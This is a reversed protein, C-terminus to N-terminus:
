RALSRRPDIGVRGGNGRGGKRRRRGSNSARFRSRDREDDIMLWHADRQVAERMLRSPACRTSVPRGSKSHTLSSNHRLIVCLYRRSGAASFPGRRSSAAAVFTESSALGAVSGTPRDCVSRLSNPGAARLVLGALINQGGVEFRGAIVSWPTGKGHEGPLRLNAFLTNSFGQTSLQAPWQRVLPKIFNSFQALGPVINDALAATDM